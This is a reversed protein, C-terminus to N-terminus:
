KAILVIVSELLVFTMYVWMLFTCYAKFTVYIYILGMENYYWTNHYIETTKVSYLLMWVSVM